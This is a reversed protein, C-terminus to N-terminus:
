WGMFRRADASMREPGWAPEWCLDVAISPGAPVVRDLEREVEEVIMGAMPCAASTMTMSVQVLAESVTVAYVLGVDLISLAMEPDIVRKLALAIPERLEAPGDYSFSDLADMAESMANSVFSYKAHM